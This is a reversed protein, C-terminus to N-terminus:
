HNVSLKGYLTTHHNEATLFVKKGYEYDVDFTIYVKLIEYYDSM